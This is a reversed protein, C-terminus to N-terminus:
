KHNEELYHKRPLRLTLGCFLQYSITKMKDAINLVENSSSWLTLVQGSKIRDKATSPFLIATMDMNVPGLIKGKFGMHEIECGQYWTTVGDGYGLAVHAVIGEHPIPHGGYGVPCGKDAEFCDIIYTELTSLNEGSWFSEGRDKPILTTPGYLIMGPRIHSEEFGFKQEISGSNSISSNVINIKAENYNTKIEQFIKNQEDSRKNRKMSLSASSLHTMLHFIENRGSTKLKQIHEAVKSHKLGLRNMGTNYKLCIPLHKFDDDALILDFDDERSIVPIIRKNLYSDKAFDLDLDLDSFVFIEFELDPLDERLKIAEALTACGFESIGLESASYRVIPIIGHGYADAKVMFLIKKDSTLARVKEVNRKLASLNVRLSSKYRM